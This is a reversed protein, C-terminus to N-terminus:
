PNYIDIIGEVIAMLMARKQDLRIEQIRDEYPKIEYLFLGRDKDNMWKIGYEFIEGYVEEIKEEIRQIINEFFNEKIVENKIIDYGMLEIEWYDFALLMIRRKPDHTIIKM